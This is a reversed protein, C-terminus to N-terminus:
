FLIGVNIRISNMLLGQKLQNFALKGTSVDYDSSTYMYKSENRMLNTFSHFYNASVFFATSGSLNYELGLGVNLGLRLPILSCDKGINVNSITGSGENVNNKFRSTYKDEARVKTRIGLDAGFQGFYRIGSIDKTLMKLTLPITVHTTKIKRETIGVYSIDGNNFYSAASVGDEAEKMVDSNDTVYSVEYPITGPTVTGTTPLPEYKYKISGSEFDAGIGTAFHIINSLKFETVMGFGYGFGTKLKKTANDKSAYWTPQASAKLGLRFKKDFDSDEGVKDQAYFSPALLLTSSVLVLFKKM